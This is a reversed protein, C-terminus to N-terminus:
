MVPVAFGITYMFPLKVTVPVIDPLMAQFPPVIVSSRTGVQLIRGARWGFRAQLAQCFQTQSDSQLQAAHAPTVTWVVTFSSDHRPLLALPGSETFREYAISGAPQDTRLNAVLAVQGYDTSLSAIGAAQKVISHAGDAAVVLRAHVCREGGADVIDLQASPQASAVGPTETHVRVVRAPSCLEVHPQGRLQRWLAAGLDRNRITYGFADIGHELARLRAFGFHGADSIHLESIPAAHARAEAWVGLTSLVSRAGNGLATARDDFSPNAAGPAASPDPAADPRVAEVLLVRLPTPALALALSAGVMGGGVIAVDCHVAAAGSMRREHDSSRMRIRQCTM